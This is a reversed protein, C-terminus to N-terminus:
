TAAGNLHSELGPGAGPLANQDTIPAATRTLPPGSSHAAGIMQVARMRCLHFTQIDAPRQLPSALLQLRLSDPALEVSRPAVELSQWDRPEPLGGLEPWAAPYEFRLAQGALWSQAVVELNLAEHRYLSDPLSVQPATLARQLDHPLLARAQALAARHHAGDGCRALMAAAACWLVLTAPDPPWMPPQLILRTTPQITYRPPKGPLRIFGQELRALASLDRQLSRTLSLWARGTQPVEPALHHALERLSWCGTRLRAALRWLRGIQSPPEASRPRTTM